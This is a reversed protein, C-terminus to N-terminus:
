HRIQFRDFIGAVVPWLAAGTLAPLWRLLSTVPHGTVGDVWFVIFQYLWLLSMVVLSQHLLPFMRMRLHLRHVLYAVVVFALANEGLMLGRFADLSLGAVWAYMLGGSRPSTLAFWIVVLLLFDPRLLDLAHPLPIASLVLGLFASTAAFLRPSRIVASM